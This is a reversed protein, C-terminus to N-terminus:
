EQEGCGPDLGLFLERRLFPAYQGFEGASFAVLVDCFVEPDSHAGDARVQFPNTVLGATTAPDFEGLEDFAGVVIM